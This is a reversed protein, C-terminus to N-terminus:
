YIFRTKLKDERVADDEMAMLEPMDWTVNIYRGGLWDRRESSLYVITDASIEPTETFVLLLHLNTKPRRLSPTPPFMGPKLDDPLGDRGGVIDTPINGPHICFSTVGQQSYEADIHQSLKLLAAKSTQYASLGDGVLFAGVSCVHILYRTGKAKLLLPLFARSILYPGRVNVNFVRWWAEPDSESVKSFEGLIGANNVVIDCKGFEREVRTAADDVSRQDTVDFNIALFRPPTRRAKLATAEVDRALQSLDSRAGVAIQSAGAKTLSLVLARGIGKSGGSIFISKGTFDVKAPDIAPYTDSHVITTM